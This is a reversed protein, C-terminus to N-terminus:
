TKDFLQRAKAIYAVERGPAKLEAEQLALQRRKWAFGLKALEGLRLKVLDEAVEATTTVVTEILGQSSKMRHLALHREYEQLLWELEEGAEKRTLGDKAAKKIWRRLDLLKGKSDPDNRFELIQEWATDETPEPFGRLTAEVAEARVAPGSFSTNMVHAAHQMMGLMMRETEDLQPLIRQALANHSPYLAVSDRGEFRQLWLATNAEVDFGMMLTPLHPRMIPFRGAQFLKEYDVKPQIVVGNSALWELDAALGPECDPQCIAYSLDPIAIQEFLLAERKLSPTPACIREEDDCLRLVAVSPVSINM